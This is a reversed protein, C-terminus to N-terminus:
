GWKGDKGQVAFMGKGEGKRNKDGVLNVEEGENQGHWPIRQGQEQVPYITNEERGEM